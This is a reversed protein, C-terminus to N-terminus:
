EQKPLAVPIKIKIRSITSNGTEKEAQYGIGAAPIFLGMGSKLNGQSSVAVAVDFDIEQVIMGHNINDIKIDGQSTRYANNSNVQAGHDKAHLQAKKVGNIVQKLVESVFDELNISPIEETM